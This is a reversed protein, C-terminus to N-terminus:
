RPGRADRGSKRASPAPSVGATGPLSPATRDSLVLERAAKVEDLRRVPTRHPAARVLAPDAHAEKAIAKMAEVFADLTPKTETETPEIMLAEPVILPFYNTPPHFGYDLLRKSVDLARVETGEIAGRCV